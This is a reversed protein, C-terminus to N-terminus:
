GNGNRREASRDLWEVCAVRWFPDEISLAHNRGEITKRNEWALRMPLVTRGFFPDAYGEEGNYDESLVYSLEAHWESQPSNVLKVQEWTSGEYNNHVLADPIMFIANKKSCVDLYMHLNNTIQRYPGMQYGLMSAMYEQLMSMHVANAGFAGWLVDNSRNCVTMNLKDNRCDFYIHTNCPIDKSKSGLDMYPDWMGVVVRRTEPDNALMSIAVDIQDLQFYNRWRFGYAGNITEGDDSYESFRKNFQVPLALDNAGELMWLSEMMHFFPNANRLPSFLVREWPNEYTIMVPEPAALVKGNRSNEERGERLLYDLAM